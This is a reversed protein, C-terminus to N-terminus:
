LRIVKKSNLNFHLASSPLRTAPQLMELRELRINYVNREGGATPLHSVVPWFLVDSQVPSTSVNYISLSLALAEPCCCWASTLSAPLTTPWVQLTTINCHYQQPVAARGVRCCLCSGLVSILARWPHLRIGVYGDRVQLVMSMHCDEKVCTSSKRGQQRSCNCERRSAANRSRWIQM